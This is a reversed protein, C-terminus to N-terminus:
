RGPARPAPRLDAGGHAGALGSMSQEYLKRVGNSEMDGTMQLHQDELASFFVLALPIDHPCRGYGDLRTQLPRVTCHFFLQPRVIWMNDPDSLADDVVYSNDRAGIYYSFPPITAM